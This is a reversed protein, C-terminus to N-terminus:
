LLLYHSVKTCKDKHGNFSHVEKTLNRIDWLSILGDACSTLLIFENFPSFDISFIEEKHATMCFFPNEFSKRMDWFSITTDESALGFIEPHFQHFKSENVAVTHFLVKNTPTIQRETNGTCNIKSKTFKM